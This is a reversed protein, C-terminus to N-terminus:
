AGVARLGLWLLRLLSGPAVYYGPTNTASGRLTFPIHLCTIVSLDTPVLVRALCPAVSCAGLYKGKFALFEAQPTSYTNDEPRLAATGHEQRCM